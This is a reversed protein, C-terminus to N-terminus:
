FQNPALERITRDRQEVTANRPVYVIPVDVVPHSMFDSLASRASEPDGGVGFAEVMEDTVANIAAKRDGGQWQDRIYDSEERFARAVANKYATDEFQGVYRATYEAITRYATEKDDDVVALVQPVVEFNDLSRGSEDATREIIDYANQLERKPVFYPIWGDAVRGTARLNMDNLASNYVRIEEDFPDHGSVQFLEGDYEVTDGGGTYAKMLEVVEHIRRVPREHKLGRLKETGRPHGAGVGIVARGDSVNTLTAAAMALNAPSRSYVNVIATGLRITETEVAVEALEVFSDTAWGESKWLSDYGLEEAFQGWEVATKGAARSPREATSPLKLGVKPSAM